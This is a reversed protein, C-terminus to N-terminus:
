LKEIRIEFYHDLSDVKESDIKYFESDNFGMAESMGDWILKNFNDLDGATKSITGKKTTWNGYFFAIFKKKGSYGILDPFHKRIMMGIMDKYAKGEKTLFRKGHFGTSWIRGMSLGKGEIRM